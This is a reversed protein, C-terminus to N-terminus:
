RRGGEWGTVCWPCGPCGAAHERLRGVADSARGVERVARDGAVGIRRLLDLHATNNAVYPGQVWIEAVTRRIADASRVIWALLLAVVGAVVAGVGLSIWWLTEADMSAIWATM